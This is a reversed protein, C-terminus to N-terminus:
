PLAGYVAAALRRANADAGEIYGSMRNPVYAFALDHAPDAFALAGSTGGHGFQTATEGPWLPGGPLMFGLGFRTDMLMVRDHGQSETQVAARLLGPDILRHGDVEGILSAYLWALASASAVGSMSPEGLALFAPDNFQDPRSMALTNLSRALLTRSAFVAKGFEAFEPEKPRARMLEMIPFILPALRGTEREPLGIFVNKGMVTAVRSSLVDGVTRGSVRRVVEDLIWAGTSPHYGHATGPPWAPAQAALAAAPGDGAIMARSSIPRDLAPVGARHSLLWRLTIGQKGDVAFEPWCDAVPTDLELTGDQVLLLVAVTLLGKTAGTIPTITDAGWPRRTRVDATGAWIDVVPTGRHYVCLAAGRDAGKGIIQGFTEAVAAFRPELM